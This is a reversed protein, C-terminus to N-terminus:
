GCIAVTSAFPSRLRVDVIIYKCIYIYIVKNTYKSRILGALRASSPEDEARRDAECGALMGAVGFPGLGKCLSYIGRTEVAPSRECGPCKQGKLGFAVSAFVEALMSLVFQPEYVLYIYM